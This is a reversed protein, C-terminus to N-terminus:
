VRACVFLYSVEALNEGKIDWGGLVIDTPEVTPLINKFPVYVPNGDGDNGINITSAQTISGIFDPSRPGEKTEWGIKHKNALIGATITTGNNGGWGVLMLGLKPVKRETQFEYVTKTPTVKIPNQKNKLYHM